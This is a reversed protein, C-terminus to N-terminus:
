KQIVERVTNLIDELQPTAAAELTRNYPIPVDMGAVRRPAAKFFSSGTPLAQTVRAIVEAGFGHTLAGPEAVVLRGTKAVSRVIAAWDCPILTRPDVVEVSIGEGALTEAAELAPGVMAGLAVLTVDEGPRKVEAVGIPVLYEGEPVPGIATYLLKNEFFIVPNNSRIAAKLLGKADYPTGPAIIILGPIGTLWAELSQSHQAAMGIGAGGPTRVVLPLAYQGGSMYRLKAAQNVIPDMCTTIFDSFLIEVVPRMGTMAAGVAAGAIAYESIPTDMVRHLGFEEALGITVAFYGGTSVDEGLLFVRSDRAMEEAIAEFLAKSYSIERRTPQTPQPKYLAPSEPAFIDTTLSDLTPEPSAEAFTLADQVASEAWQTIEAAQEPTLLRNEMLQRELQLIPCKQKWSEIEAQSRYPANEGEMHGHWRYTLCELLTPGDGSRARAVAQQMATYVAWADNGDVTLGPMGYAAARDSLRPVSAHKSFPTFEGYLNNEIVFVVPLKFVAAFNLAEHFMGQNTSGDGAIAVAVQDSARQRASLAAGTAILYPAGVIGNAGLAGVAADTVHMSGGKGKCLGNAKGFLEAMMGNLDAGKALMHGHGRHTTTMYDNARLAFCVGVACAEQGISLHITESPLNGEAYTRALTEEFARILRMRKLMELKLDDEAAPLIQARYEVRWFDPSLDEVLPIHHLNLAQADIVPPAAKPSVREGSFLRALWSAGAQRTKRPAAGPAAGAEAPLMSAYGLSRLVEPYYDYAPKIAPLLALAKPVSGRSVVQRTAIARAINLKGLWFLHANDGSQIMEVDAALGSEGFTYTLPPHRLDITVVGDPETFRFRVVLNGELLREVIAPESALREFLAGLVEYLHTTDRFVPM